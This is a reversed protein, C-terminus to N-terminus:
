PVAAVVLFSVGFVGAAAAPTAHGTMALAVAGALGLTAATWESWRGRRSARSRGKPTRVFEGRPGALGRAVAVSNALSLGLGVLTLAPLHLLRALGGHRHATLTFLAVPGVLALGLTAASFWLPLPAAWPSALQFMFLALLLPHVAYHTLHFLTEARVGARLHRARLVAGAHVRACQMSGRAWRAQQVRFAHVSAPVLQPAAPEDLMVFRWGRLLAAASLDVDEALTRGSWGGADEIAERRWLAATGSFSLLAGQRARARQEVAFHADLALAVARTLWSADGNACSWRTQVCAVREDAALHPVARRLWDPPPAFDADFLAVAEGRAVRLGARLAGAKADPPEGRLHAVELGAARAGAILRESAAWGAPGSDDIVQVDMRERPWDMAVLADLARALVEGEDRVPVQVTVHPARGPPAPTPPAPARAALLVAHLYYLGELALLVAVTAWLAALLTAVVAM